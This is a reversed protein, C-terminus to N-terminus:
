VKLKSQPDKDVNSGLDLGQMLRPGDVWFGENGRLSYGFTVAIYAGTMTLLRVCDPETGPSCIEYEIRDLLPAEVEAVLPKDRNKEEPMRAKMGKCFREMLLSQTAGHFQHLVRGDMAKLTSKNESARASASFVNTAASRLKRVTDFQMYSSSNRGKGLSKELMILALGMGKSDHVPWPSFECHGITVPLTSRNSVRKVAM